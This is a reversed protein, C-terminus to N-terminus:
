YGRLAVASYGVEHVNENHISKLTNSDSISVLFFIIDIVCDLWKAIM